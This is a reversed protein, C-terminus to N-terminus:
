FNTSEEQVDETEELLYVISLNFCWGSINRVKWKKEYSVVKCTCLTPPVVAEDLLVLPNDHLYQHGM